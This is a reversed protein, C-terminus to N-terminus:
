SHCHHSALSRPQVSLFSRSHLCHHPSHSAVPSSPISCGYFSVSPQTLSLHHNSPVPAFQSLSYPCQASWLMVPLQWSTSSTMQLWLM